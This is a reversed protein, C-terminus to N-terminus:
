TSGREDDHFLSEQEPLPTYQRPWATRTRCIQKPAVTWYVWEGLTLYWNTVPRDPAWPVAYSGLHGERKVFRVFAWFLDEPVEKWGNMVYFHPREIPQGPFLERQHECPIPDEPRCPDRGELRAKLSQIPRWPVSAIFEQAEDLTLEIRKPQTM